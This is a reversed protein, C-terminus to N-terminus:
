RRRGRQELLAPLLDPPINGPSGDPLIVPILEGSGMEESAAEMGNGPMEIKDALGKMLKDNTVIQRNERLGARLANATNRAGKTTNRLHNIVFLNAEMTNRADPKVRSYLALKDNTLQGGGGFAEAGKIILDGSLKGIKDLATKEKENIAKGKLYASLTAAEDASKANLIAAASKWLNPNAKFVTELEDLIPQISEASEAVDLKKYMQKRIENQSGQPLLSLDMGVVDPPINYKQAFEEHGALEPRAHQQGRGKTFMTELFRAEPSDAGYREKAELLSDLAQVAEPRNDGAMQQQLRQLQAQMIQTKLDAHEPLMGRPARAMEQLQHLNAMATPEGYKQQLMEQFAGMRNARHMAQSELLRRTFPVEEPPALFNGLYSNM